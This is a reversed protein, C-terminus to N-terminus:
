SKPKGVLHLVWHILIHLLQIIIAGLTVNVTHVHKKSHCWQKGYVKKLICRINKQNQHRAIPQYRQQWQLASCLGTFAPFMRTGEQGWEMGTGVRQIHWWMSSCGHAATGTLVM